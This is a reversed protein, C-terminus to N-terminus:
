PRLYGSAEMDDPSKTLHTKGNKLIYLNDCIQLIFQFMHDTILFGKKEKEKVILDQIIEIHNPIIHTFPENLLVFQTSSKIILYIEVLRRQGSSLNKVPNTYKIKYEPFDKEFESFDINFDFFIRKLTLSKPIL